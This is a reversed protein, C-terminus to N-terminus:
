MGRLTATLILRMIFGVPIMALLFFAAGALFGCFTRMGTGGREPVNVRYASVAVRLWVALGFLLGITLASDAGRWVAKLSGLFVGFGFWWYGLCLLTTGAYWGTTLVRMKAQAPNLGALTMGGYLCWAILWLNLPGVVLQAPVAIVVTWPNIDQFYWAEPAHSQSVIAAANLLVVPLLCYLSFTRYFHAAGSRSSESLRMYTAPNLMGLFLVKWSPWIDLTGASKNEIM